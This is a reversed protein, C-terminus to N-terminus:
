FILLSTFFLAIVGIIFGFSIWVYKKMEQRNWKEYESFYELYIDKRFVLYYCLIFSILGFGIFFFDNLEINLNLLKVVTLALSMLLLFVIGIIGGGSVLTSLGYERNQFAKNIEEDINIGLEQNRRKQFPLKHILRFPNIRNSLLHLKYHMLYISYHFINLINKM